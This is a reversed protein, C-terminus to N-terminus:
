KYKAGHKKGNVRVPDNHDTFFLIGMSHAREPNYQASKIKLLEKLKAPLCCLEPWSQTRRCMALVLKKLSEKLLPVGRALNKFSLRRFLNWWQPERCSRWLLCLGSSQRVSQQEGKGAQLKNKTSKYNHKIWNESSPSFPGKHSIRLKSYQKIVQGKHHQNNM